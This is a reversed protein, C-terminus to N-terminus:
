ARFASSLLRGGIRGELARSHPNGESDQDLSNKQLKQISPVKNFPHSLDPKQLAIADIVPKLDEFNLGEFSSRTPPHGFIEVLSRDNLRDFQNRIQPWEWDDIEIRPYNQRLDELVQATNGSLGRIQNHVFIWRRMRNKWHKLAGDFDTNIKKITTNEKMHEPAYVQFVCKRSRLYGDCKLDGLPGYPKIKQFDGPWAELMVDEFLTQFEAGKKTLWMIRFRQLLCYSGAQDM